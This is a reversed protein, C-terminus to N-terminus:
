GIAMTPTEWFSGHERHENSPIRISRVLGHRMGSKWEGKYHGTQPSYWEAHRLFEGDEVISKRKARQNVLHVDLTDALTQEWEKDQLMIRYQSPHILTVGLFTLVFPTPLYKGKGDVPNSFPKLFVLSLDWAHAPSSLDARTSIEKKVHIFLDNFLIRKPINLM